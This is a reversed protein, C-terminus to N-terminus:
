ARQKGSPVRALWWYLDAANHANEGVKEM